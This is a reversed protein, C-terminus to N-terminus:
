GEKENKVPKSSETKMRDIEAEHEKIKAQLEKARKNDDILAQKQEESLRKENRLAVDLIDFDDTYFRDNLTFRDFSQKPVSLPIGLQARLMMESISLPPEYVFGIHKVGSNKIVYRNSNFQNRVKIEM